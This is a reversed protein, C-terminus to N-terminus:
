FAGSPQLALGPGLRGGTVEARGTEDRITVEAASTTRQEEISRAVREGPSVVQPGTRGQQQEEAEDGFGFFEAVGGGISSITDVIASAANKVKDVVGMIKAVAANFIDVVGGWLDGFFAKIPEWNEMILAAAGILWGIPGALVAIAAKVPGPLGLFAAKIEDWWIIAAAIAAILAMIGLVILTISNAAMVLNVATMVLVLTKLITTLTFFVALAIGIRKAWKVINEFNNIIKALFEGVNTAILSENARVWETTKEIADSLPGSTMTFISIKVGEVASKLSNLRGQLTDRMVSAMNSSAGSADELEKRYERLRDSGSALLVNVGAIPIKGFIGELVGSREATGLGDLSKNLDGLIDVIDRMDGNADQTQIGLRKLIKAAGTGPASLTLFMNKLTTGARTGKIGANALEGALAAFTEMSAGATTAVPAGDKITEFLSEVTTNASTTTKAIVDNVRALNRGLQSADKTMLGFAGLSDSAVDTAQALDVQAATALDVVGPLAAISSEADFGAMALFNLAQASQSATFETTAGTKRAAQELQEFAETGRRIEGPFKAAASVLTQEFDAGTGIVSAMAGSTLALSAVIAVGAQKMGGVFTDVSRNLKTFNREMRRTFKGVRNHMRTVPATLRDVAKFVAEVSFRGAM